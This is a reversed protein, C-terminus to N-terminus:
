ISVVYINQLTDMSFKYAILPTSSLQSIYPIYYIPDYIIATNMPTGSPPFIIELTLFESSAVPSDAIELSPQILSIKPEPSPTGIQYFGSPYEQLMLAGLSM